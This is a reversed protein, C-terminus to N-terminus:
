CFEFQNVQTFHFSFILKSRLASDNSPPRSTSFVRQVSIAFANRIDNSLTIPSTISELPNIAYKPHKGAATAIYYKKIEEDAM